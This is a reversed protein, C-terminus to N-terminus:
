ILSSRILLNQMDGGQSHVTECLHTCPHCRLCHWHNGAHWKRDRLATVFQLGAWLFLFALMPYRHYPFSKGQGLYSAIGFLIGTILLKGEWNWWDRKIVAIALAILALTLVSPTVILRM